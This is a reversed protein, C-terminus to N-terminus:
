IIWNPVPQDDNSQGMRRCRLEAIEPIVEGFDVGNMELDALEEETFPTPDWLLEHLAALYIGEASNPDPFSPHREPTPLDQNMSLSWESM